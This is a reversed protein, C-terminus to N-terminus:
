GFRDLLRHTTWYNAASLTIIAAFVSETLIVDLMFNEISAASYRLFLYVALMAILGYIVYAAIVLKTRTRAIM